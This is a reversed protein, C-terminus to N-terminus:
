LEGNYKRTIWETGLLLIILTLLWWSDLLGKYSTHSYIMPKVDKRDRIMSPIQLLEHPMVMQGGTSQSLANMLAHDATLNQEELNVEEVVFNCAATYDKGDYKVKGTASYIDPDLQGLKIYYRNGTKNFIYEKGGLILKAEPTNVLEYNENYLEAEITVSEDQRYITKAVLRFREKDIRMSTYTVLKNILEDFNDFGQNNQYDYIRWRWMGEGSIITRRVGQQQGVTILPQKSDVTGIKTTFLNQMGAAIHYEGFPVSLPPMNEITKVTADDITFPAFGANAVATAEDQKSLKTFIEVGTHLNNFQPLDSQAGLIYICPTEGIDMKTGNRSPIQHLVVMSYDKINGKFDKALFTEVEYNQNKEIAHKLAAIDPHASAAIIAIKQHGDIIEIAFSRENNKTSVENDAAEIRITYRQVGAKQADLTIYETSSFDNNDYAIEKSYLQKGDHFVILRKREGRLQTARLTVEIPFANGQYAIKSYRINAITADRRHATDGLAVTYIPYGLREIMSVPNSGTNWLGDGTLIMAGVNRHYYQQQLTGIIESMDTVKGGYEYYQVDYDKQLEDTLKAMQVSDILHTKDMGPMRESVSESKDHAVLIIPKEKQTQTRKMMPSLLLLAILTITIARIAGLLMRLQKSLSGQRDKAWYMLVSYGAGLLLCGLVFYWPYDLLIRM